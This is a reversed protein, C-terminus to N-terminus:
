IAYQTSHYRHLHREYVCINSDWLGYHNKINKDSCIWFEQNHRLSNLSNPYKILDNFEAPSPLTNIYSSRAWWFNGSYHLEPHQKLDCGCTNYEKLKELCTNYKKILFYLMYEIQDEICLNIEKGVNKTHIYLVNDEINKNCYNYLFQLTPIEFDLLNTSVRISTVNLDEFLILEDSGVFCIFISYECKINNKIVDLYQTLRQQCKGLLAAHIFICTKSM